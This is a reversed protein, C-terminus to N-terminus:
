RPLTVTFVSGKGLESEIRVDGQHAGVIKMVIDLGLGSSEPRLPDGEGRALINPMKAPAIGTGTDKVWFRVEQRTVTGGVVIQGTETYKVANSLLNQLVQKLLLPDANLHVDPPVENLIPVGTKQTISYLDDIVDAVLVHLDVGTPSFKSPLVAENRPTTELLKSLMVNLNECNRLIIQLM